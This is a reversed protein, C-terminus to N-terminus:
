PPPIAIVPLHIRSATGAGVHIRQAAPTSDATDWSSGGTNLNPDWQPFSSSTVDVRIRHGALFTHATAWLNFRYELVEGPVVPTPRKPELPGRHDYSERVSARIIGDALNVSRGDPLDDCLRVVFDTDVATTSAFLTVEVYGAVTVPEALVDSTFSVVDPRRQVERQDQPGAEFGLMLTTGGTTPVPSEPEYRYDVGGERAPRDPTLGGDETLYWPTCEAPPPFTDFSVWRNTGMVFLRVPPVDALARAEGKLTADFWRVHQQELSLDGGMDTHSAAPGFDVDGLRRGAALHTWPGVVLHTLPRGPRRSMGEYQALTSGLFIDYWGAILFAPQELEAYRGATALTQEGLTEFPEGWACTATRLIAEGTALDRFPRRRYIEHTDFLAQTAEFIGRRREDTLESRRELENPAVAGHAWGLKSGLEVAGGRVLQGDIASHGPSHMLVMSNLAGPRALAAAWQVHALYSPGFTGVVGNSGPLAAAWVVADHGDRSEQHIDGFTGDSAHRGRVDQVVVIYGAAAIRDPAPVGDARWVRKGYPLRMVLVPVDVDVGPRYVDARLVVGDRLRCEVDRETVVPFPAEPMPMADGEDDGTGAATIGSMGSM